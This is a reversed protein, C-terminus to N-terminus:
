SPPKALRVETYALIRNDATLLECGMVRATAVIVRDAPDKHFTGPLSVAEVCIEPTLNLLRVGPYSLAAAFWAKTPCDLDLNSEAVLRAIELCSIASVGIGEEEQEILLQRMWPKLDPLDHVWWVWIHTDLVIV